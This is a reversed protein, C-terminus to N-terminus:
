KRRAAGVVQNTKASVIRHVTATASVRRIIPRVAQVGKASVKPDASVIRVAGTLQKELLAEIDKTAAREITAASSKLDVMADIKSLLRDAAKKGLTRRLTAEVTSKRRM